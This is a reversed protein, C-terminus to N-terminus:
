EEKVIYYVKGNKAVYKGVSFDRPPTDLLVYKGLRKVELVLDNEKIMKELEPITKDQLLLHFKFQDLKM